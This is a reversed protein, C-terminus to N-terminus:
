DNQKLFLTVTPNKYPKTNINVPDNNHKNKLLDQYKLYSLKFNKFHHYGTRRKTMNNIFISTTPLKSIQELHFRARWESFTVNMSSIIVKKSAERNYNKADEGNTKVLLNQCSIAKIEEHFFIIKKDKDDIIKSNLNTIGQVLFTTPLDTKFKSTDKSFDYIKIGDDDKLFYHGMENILKPSTNGM